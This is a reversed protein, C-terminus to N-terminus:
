SRNQLKRLSELLSRCLADSIPPADPLLDIGIAGSFRDRRHELFLAVWLELASGTWEGTAEANSRTAAQYRIPDGLGAKKALEYGDVIHAFEVSREWDFEEPIALTQIPSGRDLLHDRLLQNHDGGFMAIAVEVMTELRDFQRIPVKRLRKREGKIGDANPRTHRTVRGQLAPLPESPRGGLWLFPGIALTAPDAVIWVVCGGLKETLALNVDVDRRKGGARTAKLQVHRMIGRAEVVVDYGNADFESRLIEFSTKLELLLVKSLESLFVHEITKERLTSNEPAWLDFM